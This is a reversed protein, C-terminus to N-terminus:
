FRYGFGLNLVTLGPNPRFTTANSWHTLRLLVLGHPIFDYTFGINDSFNFHSSQQAADTHYSVFGNALYGLGIGANM